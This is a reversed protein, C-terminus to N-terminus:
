RGKSESDREQVILKLTSTSLTQKAKTQASVMAMSGQHTPCSLYELEQQGWLSVFAYLFGTDGQNGKNKGAWQPCWASSCPPIAAPKFRHWSKTPYETLGLLLSICMRWWLKSSLFVPFSM